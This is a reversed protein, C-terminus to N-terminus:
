VEVMGRGGDVTVVQGDALIETAGEVALVAPLAYERALTAPHSLPGGQETILGALMPFVPSWAAMTHRCVMIDGPRIRDFEEPSRIIRVPGTAKGPSAALGRIGETDAEQIPTFFLKLAWFAAGVIDHTKKPFVEAPPMEGSPPGFAPPTTNALSWRHEARRREFDKPPAAGRLAADLEDLTLYMVDRAEGLAGREVLRRAAEMSAYRTVALIDGTDPETEDAYPRGKRARSLARDFRALAEPDTIEARAEAEAAHAVAKPDARDPAHDLRARLIHLIPAPDEAWTPVDLRPSMVRHGHRELFSRFADGGEGPHDILRHPEDRLIRVAEQDRRIAGSLQDLEVEGFVSAEGYGQLLDVVRHPEWGLVEDVVMGLQGALGFTGAMGTLFHQYAVQLTQERVDTLHDALQTDSLAARDVGRLERTRARIAARGGDDWADLVAMLRDEAAAEAAVALRKRWDPIVRVALKLLPLPPLSPHDKKPESVPVIRDYVRGLYHGHDIREFPFGLHKTVMGFAQSHYPLWATFSLPTIPDPFYSDDRVWTQGEPPRETPEVPLATIPRTQLIHLRGDAVAWEVDQPTGRRQAIALAEAAIASAQAPSLVPSDESASVLEPEPSAVVWQEPTVDGAMLAEGLGAVAEIVVEDAGTVPNATFAVGALEADVMQQVLVAIRTDTDGHDAQYGAVAESRASEWCTILARRAQEIGEVNLVTEYQGAYSAHGLDEAVASSRFAFPGSRSVMERELAAAVEAPVVGDDASSHAATTVVFGDPVLAGEELLKGLEKAKSGVLTRDAAGAEALSITLM